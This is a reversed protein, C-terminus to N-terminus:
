LRFPGATRGCTLRTTVAPLRLRAASRRAGHEGARRCGRLPARPLPNRNEDRQHRQERSYICQHIHLRLITTDSRSSRLWASGCFRIRRLDPKGAQRRVPFGSGLRRAQNHRDAPYCCSVRLKARSHRYDGMEASQRGFRCTPRSLWDSSTSSRARSGTEVVALWFSGSATWSSGSLRGPAHGKVHPHDRRDQHRNRDSSNQPSPAIPSSSRGLSIRRARVASAAGRTTSAMKLAITVLSMRPRWPPSM